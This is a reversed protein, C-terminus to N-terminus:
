IWVAVNPMPVHVHAFYKATGGLDRLQLFGDWIFLSAMLLRALPPLYNKMGSM